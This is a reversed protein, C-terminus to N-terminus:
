WWQTTFKLWIAALSSSILSLSCNGDLSNWATRLGTHPLPGRPALPCTQQPRLCCEEGVRPTWVFLLVFCSCTLVSFVGGGLRMHIWICTCVCFMDVSVATWSNMVKNALTYRSQFCNKVLVGKRLRCTRGSFWIISWFTIETLAQFSPFQKLKRVQNEWVLGELVGLRFTM